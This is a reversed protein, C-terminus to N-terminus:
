VSFRFASLSSNCTIFESLFHFNRDLHSQFSPMSSSVPKIQCLSTNEIECLFFINRFIKADKTRTNKKFISHM